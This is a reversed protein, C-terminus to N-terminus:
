AIDKWFDIRHIGFLSEEVNKLSRLDFPKTLIFDAELAALAEEKDKSDISSSVFVIVIIKNDTM